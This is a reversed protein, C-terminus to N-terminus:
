KIGRKSIQKWNKGVQKELTKVPIDLILSAQEYISSINKDSIDTEFFIRDLPCIRLWKEANSGKKFLAEGFSFFIPFILLKQAINVKQNFGHWIIFPPDTHTKLYQQLLHLGKVCHLIVPLQFRKALTAQQIFVKLQLDTSPGKILDFGCEGIAYLSPHNIHRELHFFELKWDKKLYWPHLGLSFPQPKAKELALGNFIGKPNGITHTHIDLLAM